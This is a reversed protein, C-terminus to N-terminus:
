RPIMVLQPKKKEGVVCAVRAQNQNIKSKKGSRNKEERRLEIALQDEEAKAARRVPHAM